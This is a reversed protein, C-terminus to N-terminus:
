GEGLVRTTILPRAAELVWDLSRRVVEPTDDTALERETDEIACELMYVQDQLQRLADRTVVLEADSLGLDASRRRVEYDRQRHSPRCYQPPRGPGSRADLPRGCWRCRGTESPTTM